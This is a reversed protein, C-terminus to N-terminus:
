VGFKGIEVRGDASLLEGRTARPFDGRALRRVDASSRKPGGGGTGDPLRSLMGVIQGLPLRRAVLVVATSSQEAAANTWCRDDSLTTQAVM